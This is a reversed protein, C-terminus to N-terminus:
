CPCKPYGVLDRDWDGKITIEAEGPHAPREAPDQWDGEWSLRSSHRGGETAVPVYPRACLPICM